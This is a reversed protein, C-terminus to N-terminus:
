GVPYGRALVEALVEAPRTPAILLRETSVTEATPRRGARTVVFVGTPGALRLELALGLAGATLDLRPADADVEAPGMGAIAARQFLTPDALTLPDHIVIGAPVLVVWRRALGYLARGAVVSSAAAVVAVPVGVAWNGGALLLVASTPGGVLAAWALAAPGVLAIGPPRLSFRRENPYAPGNVFVAATAPAFAVGLAVAANLAGLLTTHGGAAALAVALLAAPAAVRWVTIGVPHPVLTAVLTLAWVAWMGATAAARVPGDWGHVAAGLAGGATIPMLAWAARGVWPALREVSLPHTQTVTISPLLRVRYRKDFDSM